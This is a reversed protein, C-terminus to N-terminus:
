ELKRTLRDPDSHPKCARHFAGIAQCIPRSQILGKMVQRGFEEADFNYLNMSKDKEDYSIRSITELVDGSKSELKIRYVGDAVYEISRIYKATNEYDPVPAYASM